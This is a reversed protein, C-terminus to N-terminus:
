KFGMLPKKILSVEDLHNKEEKKAEKEINKVVRQHIKSIAKLDARLKMLEKELDNIKEKVINDRDEFEEKDLKTPLRQYEIVTIKEMLDIFLEQYRVM